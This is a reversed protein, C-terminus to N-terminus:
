CTLLQRGSKVRDDPDSPQPEDRRALIVGEDLTEGCFCYFRQLSPSYAMQRFCRKCKM